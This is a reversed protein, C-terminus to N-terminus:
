WGTLVLGVQVPEPMMGDGGHELHNTASTEVGVREVLVLIRQAFQAEGVQKMDAGAEPRPSGRSAAARM